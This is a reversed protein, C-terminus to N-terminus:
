RDTLVYTGHNPDGLISGGGPLAYLYSGDLSKIPQFTLPDIKVPAWFRIHKHLRPDMCQMLLEPIGGVCSEKPVVNRKGTM